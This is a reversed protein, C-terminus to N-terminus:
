AKPKMRLAIRVELFTYVFYLGMGVFIANTNKHIGAALLYILTITALGMLKVFSGLMVGFIMSTPRTGALSRRQLSLNIWAFVFLFFNAGLVVEWSIQWIALQDKLLFCAGGILLFVWVFPLYWFKMTKM